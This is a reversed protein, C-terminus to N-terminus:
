GVHNGWLAQYIGTLILVVAFGVPLWFFLYFLPYAGLRQQREIEAAILERELADTLAQENDM